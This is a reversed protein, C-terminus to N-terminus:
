EGDGSPQIIPETAPGLVPGGVARCLDIRNALVDARAAVLALEARQQSALATLVPLYDSLGSRYRRQTEGLTETALRFEEELRELHTRRWGDRALADAVEHLAALVVRRYALFREDALADAQEGAAKRRGGDLLPATLSGALNLAWNDFLDAIRDANYTGSGTLNLSPLRAAEAQAVAWEQARLRLWAARIDPRQELLRAPLGLPLADPLSPLDGTALELPAHPPLGLLLRLQLELTAQRERLSPLSSELSALQQRQQLVDVAHSLAQRQRVQLLELQRAGTALQSEVVAIRALTARYDLWTRALSGSLALATAEADQESALVALEAAQTGARIRGWLDVEYALTLGLGFTDTTNGRVRRTGASGNGTAQIKGVAAAQVAQAEAQRLRAWAQAVDLNGRFAADMLRNLEASGLEEWWRAPPAVTPVEEAFREPLIHAALERHTPQLRLGACSVALVAGLSVAWPRFQFRIM